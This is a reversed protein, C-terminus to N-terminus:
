TRRRTYQQRMPRSVLLGYLFCLGRGAFYVCLVNLTSALLRLMFLRILMQLEQKFKCPGFACTVQIQLLSAWVLRRIQLFPPMQTVFAISMLYLHIKLSCLPFPIVPQNWRCSIILIIPVYHAKQDAKAQFIVSCHRNQFRLDNRGKWIHWLIYCVLDINETSDLHSFICNLIHACSGHLNNKYWSSLCVM